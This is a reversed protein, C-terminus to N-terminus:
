AEGVHFFIEVLGVQALRRMVEDVERISPRAALGEVLDGEGRVYVDSVRELGHLAQVRQQALELERQPLRLRGEEVRDGSRDRLHFAVHDLSCLSAKWIGLLFRRTRTVPTARQHPASTTWRNTSSVSTASTMPMSM